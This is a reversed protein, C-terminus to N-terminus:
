GIVEEAGPADDIPLLCVKVVPRQIEGDATKLTVVRVLGDPGPHLHTVRGLKWKLPPLREDKILVLANIEINKNAKHWKPRQQLRAVFEGSWRNWFQQTIRQVLQWRTVRNDPVDMLNPEALATLSNGILFHGPTLATLDSPDSSIATLPRSNLCAEIQCMTTTMEEFTLRTTGMVRYLHFKVSKVGAEWIGGM